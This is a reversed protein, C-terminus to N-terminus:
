WALVEDIGLKATVQRDVIRDKNRVRAEIRAQMQDAQKRLHELQRREEEVRMEFLKGLVGTLEVEVHPKQDETTENYKEVLVDVRAELSLMQEQRAYRAPDSTKLAALQRAYSSLERVRTRLQRDNEKAMKAIQRAEVPKYKRMYDLTTRVADSTLGTSKALNQIQAESLRSAAAANAPETNKAAPTTAEGASPPSSGLAVLCGVLITVWANRTRGDM